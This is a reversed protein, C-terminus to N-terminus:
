QLLQKVFEDDVREEDSFAAVAINEYGCKKGRQFIIWKHPEACRNDLLMSGSIGNYEKSDDQYFIFVGFQIENSCTYNLREASINM